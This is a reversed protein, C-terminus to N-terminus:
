CTLIEMTPEWRLLQNRVATPVNEDMLYRIAM